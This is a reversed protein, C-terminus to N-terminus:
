KLDKLQQTWWHRSTPCLKTMPVKEAIVALFVKTLKDVASLLQQETDLPVAPGIEKEIREHLDKCFNDWDVMRYNLKNEVPRKDLPLNIVTLIPVHDAQALQEEPVVDCDTVCKMLVESCFVNDPCTWNGTTAAHFMPISPLLTMFM